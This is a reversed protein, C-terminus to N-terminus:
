GQERGQPLILGPLTLPTRAAKRKRRELIEPRSGLRFRWLPCPEYPPKAKPSAACARALARDGCCCCLCQRRAARVPPREAQPAPTGFRYDHLPCSVNECEAVLSYSGGMCAVCFKRICELIGARRGHPPEM